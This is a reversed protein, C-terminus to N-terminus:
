ELGEDWAEEDLYTPRQEPSYPIRGREELLSEFQVLQAETELSDVGLQDHRCSCHVLQGGCWPCIEVVCGLEHYEGSVAHCVPCVEPDLNLPEYTPLEGTAKAVFDAMSAYGFFDLLEDALFGEQAEGHFELGEDSVLYLYRKDGTELALLFIGQKRDIRLIERVWAEAADPLFSYFEKLLMLALRDDRYQDLLDEAEVRSTEPVAFDMATRIERLMDQIENQM